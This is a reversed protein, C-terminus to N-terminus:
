AAQQTLGLRKGPTFHVPLAKIGRSEATSYDPVFDDAVAFDPLRELLTSLVVHIMTRAYNRGICVHAGTGFALHDRADRDLICKNPDAFKAPDRNAAGNLALIPVGPELTQGAIEVPHVITRRQGQIPSSFRLFEEIATEWPVAGSMLRQKDAPHRALHFIAESMAAHTTDLAGFLTLLLVRFIEDDTLYKGDIPTEILGQLLDGRPAEARRKTALGSLYTAIFVNREQWGKEDVTRYHVMYDLVDNITQQDRDPVGIIPLMTKGLTPRTLQSALEATGIEIFDDVLGNIIAEIRARDAAAAAATFYPNLVKRFRTHQPPDLDIPLLTVMQPPLATGESTTFNKHDSFITKVADYSVAFYFGGHRESKAIPCSARQAEFFAFPDRMVTGDHHSFRSAADDAQTEDTM